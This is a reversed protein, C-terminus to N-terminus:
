EPVDKVYLPSPRLRTKYLLLIPYFASLLGMMDLKPYEAGLAIVKKCFNLRDIETKTTAIQYFNDKIPKIPPEYKTLLGELHSTKIEMLELLREPKLKLTNAEKHKTAFLELFQTWPDTSLKTVKHGILRHIEDKIDNAKQQRFAYDRSSFLYQDEDFNYKIM